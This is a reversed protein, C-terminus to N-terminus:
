LKSHFIGEFIFNSVSVEEFPKQGAKKRLDAVNLINGTSLIYRKSVGNIAKEM